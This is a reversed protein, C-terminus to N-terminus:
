MKAAFQAAKNLFVDLADRDLYKGKLIVAHIKQTNHIDELPNADLLVLDARQGSAITGQENSRNLFEAPKSTAAQLAEMPTFGARVLDAISDHLAFGPVLNPATSDTGAMMPIGVAHM